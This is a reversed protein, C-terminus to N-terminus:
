RAGQRLGQGKGVHKLGFLLLQWLRGVGRGPDPPHPPQGEEAHLSPRQFGPSFSCTKLFGWKERKLEMLKGAANHGQVLSRRGATGLVGRM